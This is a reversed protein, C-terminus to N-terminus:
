PSIIEKEGNSHERVVVGDPFISEQLGDTHIIKRTSDPFLIDKTGDPFHTEVQKNPFEYVNTGDKHTTHTTDAQSYYYVVIGTSPDKLMTDGNSYRVLCKGDPFTEKVTNNRYTVIKRGDETHEEVRGSKNNHDSSSNENKNIIDKDDFNEQHGEEINEIDSHHDNDDIDNDDDNINNSYRLTSKTHDDNGKFIADSLIGKPLENYGYIAEGNEPLDVLDDRDYHFFMEESEANSVEPINYGTKPAYNNILKLISKGSPVKKLTDWIKMKEKEVKDIQDRYSEITASQEKIIQQLRRENSRNKRKINDNELKVKDVVSRLEEIEAREKRVSSGPGNESTKNRIDRAYKAASRRERLAAQKQENCWIETREKEDNIWKMIDRREKLAENLTSEQQKKLQKISLNEKKYIELEKELQEAKETLRQRVSNDIDSVVEKNINSINSNSSSTPNRSNQSSSKKFRNNSSSNNNKNNNNNQNTSSWSMTSAMAEGPGAGISYADKRGLTPRPRFQEQQINIDHRRFEMEDIIPDAIQNNMQPRHGASIEQQRSYLKDRPPSNNLYNDRENRLNEETIDVWNQSDDYNGNYDDGDDDDHINNSNSNNDHSVISSSPYLPITDIQKELQEFEALELLAEHRKEEWYDEDNDIPSDSLTTTPIVSPSTQEKMKPAKVDVFFDNNNKNSNITKKHTNRISNSSPSPNSSKSSSPSPTNNNSGGSQSGAKEKLMRNFATPETRSGKRLFPKPTVVRKSQSLSRRNSSLPPAIIDSSSEESQESRQNSKIPIEDIDIVTSKTTEDSPISQNNLLNEDYNSPDISNEICNENLTSKHPVFISDSPLSDFEIDESINFEM